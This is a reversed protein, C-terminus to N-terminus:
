LAGIRALRVCRKKLGGLSIQGGCTYRRFVLAGSTPALFLLLARVLHGPPDVGYGLM